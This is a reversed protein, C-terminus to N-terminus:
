RGLATSPFSGPLSPRDSSHISSDNGDGAPFETLQEVHLREVGPLNVTAHYSGYFNVSLTEDANITYAYLPLLALGRQGNTHCCTVPAGQVLDDDGKVGALWKRFFRKPGMLSMFYSWTDGAPSLAPLLQNWAAEEALDLSRFDGTLEYLRLNLQIWTFTVCTEINTWEPFLGSRWFYELNSMGGTVYRHSDAIQDRAGIVLQLMSKDGTARAYEVLGVFCSMMEYAKGDGISVIDESKNLVTLLRPGDPDEWANLIHHAFDLYREFGTIQYLLMLPEMFSGSGLGAPFDSHNINRGGPGFVQIILDAAKIASILAPEWDYYQYYTLLALICYKHVWVDFVDAGGWEDGNLDIPGGHGIDDKVGYWRKDPLYTGLYGDPEQLAVLNEVLYKVKGKLALSDLFISTPIASLLFKGIHEGIYAQIGPKRRFGSLLLDDRVKLAWNECSKRLLQGWFGDIIIDQPALPVGAPHLVVHNFVESVGRDM